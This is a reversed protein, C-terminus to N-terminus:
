SRGHIGITYICTTNAGQNTEFLLIVIQVPPIYALTPFQQWTLSSSSEYYIDALRVFHTTSNVFSPLSYGAALFSKAERLDNEKNIRYLLTEDVHQLLGWISVNRPTRPIAYPSLQNAPVYNLSIHSVTIMESLHVAVRGDVAPFEWCEGNVLGEDLLISPRIINPHDWIYGTIRQIFRGRFTPPPLGHTPSTLEPIIFAGRERSAYNPPLMFAPLVTAIANQAATPPSVCPNYHYHYRPALDCVESIDYLLIGVPM